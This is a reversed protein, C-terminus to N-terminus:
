WLMNVAFLFMWEDPSLLSQRLRAEPYKNSNPLLCRTSYHYSNKKICWLSFDLAQLWCAMGM